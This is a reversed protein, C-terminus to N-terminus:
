KQRTEGDGSVKRIGLGKKRRSRGEGGPNIVRKNNLKKTPKTPANERKPNSDITKPKM